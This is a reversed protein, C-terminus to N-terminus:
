KLFGAANVLFHFEDEREENVNSTRSKIVWRSRGEDWIASTVETDLEIFKELSEEDVIDRM